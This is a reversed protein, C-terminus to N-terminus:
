TQGLFLMRSSGSAREKQEAILTYHQEVLARINQRCNKFITLQRNNNNKQL